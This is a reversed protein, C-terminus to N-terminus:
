EILLQLVDALYEHEDEPYWIPTIHAEALRDDLARKKLPDSPAALIAYHHPLNDQGEQQAVKLFTQMTRDAALSCGLFLFSYSMYLRKLLKPLACRFHINGDGGYAADYEVKRLVREDPSTLNGHLKLIYHDGSAIARFFASTNGRGFIKERFAAGAASWAEEAVRDFNTTVACKEFLTPLLAVASGALKINEFDREFDREFREQSLAEIIDETLGEYEARENLRITASAVDLGAEAALGLLYDRWSKCGASVSMGAGLFPIVIGNRCSRRLEGFVQDNRPYDQSNLIAAREAEDFLTAEQDYIVRDGFYVARSPKALPLEVDGRKYIVQIDEDEDDDIKQDFRRNKGIGAFEELTSDPDFPPYQPSPM